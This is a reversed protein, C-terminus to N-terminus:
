KRVLLVNGTLSYEEDDYTTYNLVCFYTGESLMEGNNNRGDWGYALAKPHTYVLQGWRNYIFLQYDKIGDHVIPKFLDNVGDGDPTFTNPLEIANQCDIYDVQISKETLCGNVTVEVSFQNPELVNFTPSTSQDQWLYAANPTSADLLLSEGLCLLTDNPFNIIPYDQVNVVISDSQSCNDITRIVWYTQGHEVWIQDSTSGDNWSYNANTEYADLWFGEGECILTDTGLNLNPLINYNVLISDTDSGCHNTASVWILGPTSVTQMALQSGDNWLYTADFSTANLMLSEGECLTTDNGLNVYPLTNYFDISITDTTSCGHVTVEGWYDGSQTIDITPTTSGDLWQYTANQQTMDLTITQGQCLSTDAGLNLEPYENIFLEISDRATGCTNTIDVWYTGPQNITIIHYTSLTSWEYSSNPTYGDIQVIDGSCAYIDSGLNPTPLQQVDVTISDRHSCTGDSVEIWYTGSQTILFTSDTSGDQWQFNQGSVNSSINYPTTHCFTTDNGLDIGYLESHEVPAAGYIMGPVIAPCTLTTTMLHPGSLQYLDNDGITAYLKQPCATTALGFVQSDPILQGMVTSNPFNNLNIKVLEYNSSSYYLDGDYFCLDGGSSFLNGVDGLLSYIGTNIDIIYVETGGMAYLEGTPSFVLSNAYGNPDDPAVLTVVGTQPNIKYLGSWNVAYLHQDIPNFAIDKFSQGASAVLTSTCNSANVLHIDGVDNTTYLLDQAIVPSCFLISLLFLYTKIFQPM